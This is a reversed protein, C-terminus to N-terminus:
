ERDEGRRKQFLPMLQSEYYWMKLGWGDVWLAYIAEPEPPRCGHKDEYSGIVTAGYSFPLHKMQPQMEETIFVRDGAHYKQGQATIDAIRAECTEGKVLGVLPSACVLKLFDRRKM